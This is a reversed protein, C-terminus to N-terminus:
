DNWGGIRILDLDINGYASLPFDTRNSTNSAILYDIVAGEDDTIVDTVLVVHSWNDGSKM